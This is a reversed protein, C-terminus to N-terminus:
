KIGLEGGPTLWELEVLTELGNDWEIMGKVTKGDDEVVTIYQGNLFGLTILVKDGAAWRPAGAMMECFMEVEERSVEVYKDDKIWAGKLWKLGNMVEEDVDCFVMGSITWVWVDRVRRGRRSVRVRRKHKAPACAYGRGTLEEVLDDGHGVKSVLIKM